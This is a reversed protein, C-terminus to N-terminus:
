TMFIPWIESLKQSVYTFQVLVTSWLNLNGSTDVMPIPFIPNTHAISWGIPRSFIWHYHGFRPRIPYWVGGGGYVVLISNYSKFHYVTLFLTLILQVFSNIAHITRQLSSFSIVTFYYRWKTRFRFIRIIQKLNMKLLTSPHSSRSELSVGLHFFSKVWLTHVMELSCVTCGWRVVEKGWM